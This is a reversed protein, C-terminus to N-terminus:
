FHFETTGGLNEGRWLKTLPMIMRATVCHSNESKDEIGRRGETVFTLDQQNQEDRCDREYREKKKGNSM